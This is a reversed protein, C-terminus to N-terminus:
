KAEILLRKLNTGPPWCTMLSLSPIADQNNLISINEADVIRKNTVHYDYFKSQYVLTIKDGTDLKSILYFISNYRFAELFNQSSHSFIFTNGPQGPFSTGKAHAVGKTLAEQYVISNFPDVNKIVNVNIGLKPIILGFDMDVPNITKINQKYKSQNIQFNVEEKVLPAYSFCLILSAAIILFYGLKLQM